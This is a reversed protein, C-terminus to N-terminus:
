YSINVNFNINSLICWFHDYVCREFFGFKRPSCAGLGGLKPPSTLGGHFTVSGGGGVGGRWFM